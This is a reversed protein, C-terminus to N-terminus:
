QRSPSQSSHRQPMLTTTPSPVRQPSATRPSRVQMGRSPYFNDGLALSPSHLSKTSKQASLAFNSVPPLASRSNAPSGIMNMTTTNTEETVKRRSRWESTERQLFEFVTEKHEILMDMITEESSRSIRGFRKKPKRSLDSYWFNHEPTVFVLSCAYYWLALSDNTASKCSQLPVDEVFSIAATLQEQAREENAKIFNIIAGHGTNTGMLFVHSSENLEIYNDWLYTLLQTAEASRFEVSDSAEHEQGEEIDSIHKPLNVDIVAFGQKVAWDVYTKM